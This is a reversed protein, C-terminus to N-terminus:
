IYSVSIIIIFKATKSKPNPKMNTLYLLGLASLSNPAMFTYGSRIKAIETGKYHLSIISIYQFLYIFQQM